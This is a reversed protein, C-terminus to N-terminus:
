LFNELFMSFKYLCNRSKKEKLACIRFIGPILYILFPLLFSIFLSVISDKILHIQTNVYIGCFCSIYYLFILLIIFIIIYFAIFKKKLTNLIKEYYKKDFKAKEKEKKIEVIIDQSLALKKILDDIFRSILSSYIIQPIQFLFDYKGRDVHIKHMTDDNFFLANITFDLSFSFFFLFIKIIMLNYDEYPCFSFILPHNNKLLSIYYQFYSRHDLKKAELYDLSNLEFDKQKILEKINSDNELNLTNMKILSNSFHNQTIQESINRGKKTYKNKDRSKIKNKGIINNNNDDDEFMNKKKKNKIFEKKSKQPEIKKKNNGFEKIEIKETSKLYSIINIIIDKLGKFSKILFIILVLFYLILIGCMIIFGFNKKLEKIIFVNKFCKLISFNMINKIDIFNKFFDNTKFKIEDIPPISLKVDCSCKAREEEKNYDILDCNDECLSMNNNIFDNRRDKLTIDTGYSSTTKSCVDNYYDSSANYKDITDNISVVLSIEIKTDKCLALDLKTLNRRENFPYYVEYEIIPIKMTPEQYIIELIYLSDNIPINYADKLKNECQGLNLAINEEKKNVKQNFTSTFRITTDDLPIEINIDDNISTFGQNLINQIITNITIQDNM